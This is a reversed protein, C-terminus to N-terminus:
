NEGSVKLATEFVPLCFLLISSIPRFDEIDRSLVFMGCEFANCDRQGLPRDDLCLSNAVVTGDLSVCTVTRSQTGVTNTGELFSFCGFVHHEFFHLDRTIM